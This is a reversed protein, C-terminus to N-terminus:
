ILQDIYVTCLEIIISVAVTSTEEVHIVCKVDKRARHVASHIVYGAKNIGFCTSGADLIEGKGDIKVLSSATIESYLAGFPNIM